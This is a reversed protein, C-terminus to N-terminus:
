ACKSSLLLLIITASNPNNLQEIASRLIKLVKTIHYEVAKPKMDLQRAIEPVSMGDVRSCKYILRSKEPLAEIIGNLYEQTFKLEIAAEEETSMLKNEYGNLLNRRRKAKLLAKFVGFKVATGLYDTLSRIQFSEPRKWIRIFVDNVIEEVAEKDKTYYYGIDVLHEWYRIYIETLASEDGANLLRLLQDDTYSQYSPM